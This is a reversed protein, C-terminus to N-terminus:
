FSVGPFGSWVPKGSYTMASARGQLVKLVALAMAEQEMEGPYVRVPAIWGCRQRIGRAIDGFRM